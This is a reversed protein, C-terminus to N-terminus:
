SKKKKKKRRKMTTSLIGSKNNAFPSGLSSDVDVITPLDTKFTTTTM